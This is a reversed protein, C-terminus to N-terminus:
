KWPGQLQNAQAIKMAKYPNSPIHKGREDKFAMFWTNQDRIITADIIMYGPDFMIAPSSFQHFDPTTCYWLRHDLIPKRFFNKKPFTTSSWFIFYLKQTPDYVFEPAWTNVTSPISEMIPIIQQPEWHILDSSYTYIFNKSRWSDTFILHFKGDPGQQLFPDRVSKNSVNCELIPNNQKLPNWVLGDTSLAFHLKESTTRFYSLLFMHSKMWFTIFSKGRPSLKDKFLRFVM